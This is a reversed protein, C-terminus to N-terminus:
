EGHQPPLPTTTRPWLTSPKSSSQTPKPSSKRGYLKQMEITDLHPVIDERQFYKYGYSPFMIADTSKDHDLGLAHGIEHVAILFFNVPSPKTKPFRYILACCDTIIGCNEYLVSICFLDM